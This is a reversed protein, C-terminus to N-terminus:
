KAEPLLRTRLSPLSQNGRRQTPHEVGEVHHEIREDEGGDDLVEPQRTFRATQHGRQGQAGGRNAAQQEADQGVFEAARPGQVEADQEIRDKGESATESLVDPLEGDEADEEAQAHAALPGAAGGEDALGPGLLM